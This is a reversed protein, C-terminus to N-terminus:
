DTRSQKSRSRSNSWTRKWTMSDTRWVTTITTPRHKETRRVSSRSLGHHVNEIMEAVDGELPGIRAEVRDIEETGPSDPQDGAEAVRYAQMIRELFEHPELDLEEPRRVTWETASGDEIVSEVTDEGAQGNRIGNTETLLRYLDHGMPPDGPFRKPSHNSVLASLGQFCKPRFKRTISEGPYYSPLM